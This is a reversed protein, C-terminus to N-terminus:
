AAPHSPEIAPEAGPWSRQRAQQSPQRSGTRAGRGRGGPLCVVCAGHRPGALSRCAGRRRLCLADGRERALLRVPLRGRLRQGFVRELRPGIREWPTGCWFLSGRVRCRRLEEQRRAVKLPVLGAADGRAFAGQALRQVEHAPARPTRLRLSGSHARTAVGGSRAAGAPFRGRCGARPRTRAVRRREHAAGSGGGDGAAGARSGLSGDVRLRLARRIRRGAAVERARRAHLRLAAEGAGPLASAVRGAGM